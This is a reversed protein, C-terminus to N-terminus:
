STQAAAALASRNAAPTEPRIACGATLLLGRPCTAIAEKAQEAVQSPSMEHLRVQDIGGMVARPTRAKVEALSPNGEGHDAWNFATVPYDLLLDMMNHNRCVHLVNFPAGAVVALLQLDYPRGFERYLDETCTDRSAWTLPAYFIGSAGAALAAGAYEKLTTAVAEVAVHAGSPNEAAYQVFERGPGCLQAVVSLPSFLTHIVDVESGVEDLLLRLAYLHEAFVGGRGDVPAIQELDHPSAIRSTLLRPQRQETSREYTNGWAEAFYTARPNLKIFDSGGARYADLTAAVLDRPTWERLFDHGWLSVPVRDVPNGV